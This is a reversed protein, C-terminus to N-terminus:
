ESSRSTYRNMWEGFSFFNWFHELTEWIDFLELIAKLDVMKPWQGEEYFVDGPAHLALPFFYIFFAWGTTPFVWCFGCRSSDLCETAENWFFSVTCWTLSSSFPGCSTDGGGNPIAPLLAEKWAAPLSKRLELSGHKPHQRPTNRRREGCAWIKQDGKITVMLSAGGNHKCWTLWYCWLKSHMKLFKLWLSEPLRARTSILPHNLCMKFSFSPIVYYPSYIM